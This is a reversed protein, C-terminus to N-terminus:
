YVSSIELRLLSKPWCTMWNKDEIKSLSEEKSKVTSLRQAKMAAIIYLMRNGPLIYTHDMLMTQLSSPCLGITPMSSRSYLPFVPKQVIALYNPTECVVFYCLDTGGYRGNVKLSEMQIPSIAWYEGIKVQSTTALSMTAQSWGSKEQVLQNSFYHNLTDIEQRNKERMIAFSNSNFEKQMKYLLSFIKYFYYIHEVRHKGNSYIVHVLLFPSNKSRKLDWKVNDRYFGHRKVMERHSFGFRYLGMDYLWVSDVGDKHPM